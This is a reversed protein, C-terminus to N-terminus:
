KELYNMRKIGKDGETHFNVKELSNIFNWMVLEGANIVEYGFGLM